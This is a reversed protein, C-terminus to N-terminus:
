FLLIYATAPLQFITSAWRAAEYTPDGAIMAFFRQHFAALAMAAAAAGALAAGARRRESALMPALGMGACVFVFFLIFPTGTRQLHAAWGAMSVALGIAVVIAAGMPQRARQALPRLLPWLVYLEFLMPVFYLQADASGNVLLSVVRGPRAVLAPDTYIATVISWVVYAPLLRLARRRVFDLYAAWGGFPERYRLSMAAASMALFMPAGVICALHLLIVPWTEAHLLALPELMTWSMHLGIVAVIALGRLVDISQVRVGSGAIRDEISAIGEIGAIPAGSGTGGQAAVVEDRGHSHLGGSM